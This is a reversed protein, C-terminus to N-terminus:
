RTHLRWRSRTAALADRLMQLTMPRGAEILGHAPRDQRFRLDPGLDDVEICWVPDRGTGGLSSPRRHRLLLTPDGPAVSLGGDGPGVPDTPSVATVDPTPADGSRIGLLRGSPGVAPFGDAEERMSRYLLM